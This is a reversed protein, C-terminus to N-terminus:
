PNTLEEKLNSGKDHIGYYCVDMVEKQSSSARSSM